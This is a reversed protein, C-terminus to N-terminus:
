NPIPERSVEQQNDALTSILGIIGNGEMRVGKKACGAGGGGACACACACSVCACACSGGGSGGIYTYGGGYGDGDGSIVAIILALILLGVLAIGGIVIITVILDDSGRYALEPNLNPFAAKDYVLEVTYRQGEALLANWRVYQGDQSIPNPNLLLLHDRNAPLLWMIRLDLTKARDYWGPIFQYTLQSEDDNNTYAMKTLLVGFEVTFSEGPQYDRDLDIRVGSWSSENAVQISAANGGYNIITYNNNPMGVTIWPIHGSLVDWTLSYYAQLAGDEQPNITVQYVSIQYTGTDEAYTPYAFTLAISVLLIVLIAKTKM